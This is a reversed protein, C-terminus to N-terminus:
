RDNHKEIIALCLAREPTSAAVSYMDGDIRFRGSVLGDYYRVITIDHKNMLDWCLAKGKLPNFSYRTFGYRFGKDIHDLYSANEGIIKFDDLKEIEALKSLIELDTLETM